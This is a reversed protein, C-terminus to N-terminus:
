RQAVPKWALRDLSDQAERTLRATQPGKALSQLIERAEPSGIHELVEVARLARLQDPSHVTQISSLLQEIRRRQEGTPKAKLAAELFPDIQEGFGALRNSAAERKEFENNDLDAILQKVEDVPAPKAPHLRDRLLTV